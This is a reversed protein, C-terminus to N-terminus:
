YDYLNGRQYHDNYCVMCMHKFGGIAVLRAKGPEKNCIVCSNNEKWKHCTECLVDEKWEHFGGASGCRDCNKEKGFISELKKDVVDGVEAEGIMMNVFCERCIYTKEKQWLKLMGFKECVECKAWPKHGNSMKYWKESHGKEEADFGGWADGGPPNYPAGYMTVASKGCYWKKFEFDVREELGGPGVLMASDDEMQFVYPSEYDFKFRKWVKGKCGKDAKLVSAKTSGFFLIEREMDFLMHLPNNHRALLMKEPEAISLVAIAANGRCKKAVLKAGKLLSGEKEIIKIIAESDVEAQRDMKMHKFLDDDNHVFGNHVMAYGNPTTVPHNNDNNAEDGKTKFRTHGILMRPMSMGELEKFGKSRVFKSAERPAKTIHITGDGGPYGVGCADRGRDEIELLM